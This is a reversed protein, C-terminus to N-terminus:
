SLNQRTWHPRNCCYHYRYQWGRRRYRSSNRAGNVMAEWLRKPTLRTERRLYSVGITTLIAFFAAQSATHGVVLTAILVILPILCYWQSKLLTSLRPLEVTPLGEIGEKKAELHVMVWVSFFYLLAPTASLLAIHSYPMETREAMIFAGAGMVPPLFQGGVSATAEVAGAIHSRFGTRKM